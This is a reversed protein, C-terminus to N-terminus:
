VVVMVHHVLKLECLASQLLLATERISKKHMVLERLESQDVPYADLFVIIDDAQLQKQSSKQFQSSFFSNFSIELGNWDSNPPDSSFPYIPTTSPTSPQAPKSPEVESSSVSTAGLDIINWEERENLRFVLVSALYSSEVMLSQQVLKIDLRRTRGQQQKWQISLSAPSLTMINVADDFLPTHLLYLGQRQQFEPFMVSLSPRKSFNDGLIIEALEIGKDITTELYLSTAIMLDAYGLKLMEEAHSKLLRLKKSKNPSSTAMNYVEGLLESIEPTLDVGHQHARLANKIGDLIFGFNNYSRASLLATRMWIAFEPPKMENKLIVQISEEFAHVGESLIERAITLYYAPNPIPRFYNRYNQPTDLLDELLAWAYGATENHSCALPSSHYLLSGVAKIQNAHSRAAYRKFVSESQRVINKFSQCDTESTMVNFLRQDRTLPAGTMQSPCSYRGYYGGFDDFYYYPLKLSPRGPVKGGLAVASFIALSISIIHM